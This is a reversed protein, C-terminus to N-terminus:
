DWYLNFYAGTPPRRGYTMGTLVREGPFPVTEPLDCLASEACFCRCLLGCCEVVREAPAILERIRLTAGSMNGVFACPTGSLTFGYSFGDCFLNEDLAYAISEKDWEFYGSECFREGRLAAYEAADIETLGAAEKSLPSVRLRKGFVTKAMGMREFYGATESSSPNLVFSAGEEECHRYIAGHLASMVGLRRFDPHVGEAYGYLYDWQRGAVTLKLPFLYAAGAPKGKILCVLTRDPRFRRSFFLDLYADGDDFCTQWLARLAEVDDDEAFRISLDGNTRM